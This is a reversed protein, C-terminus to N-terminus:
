YPYLGVAHLLDLSGDSWRDLWAQVRARLDLRDDTCDHLHLVERYLAAWVKEVPNTWPAYTPLFLLSIRSDQLAQIVDPHRHVPWNDQVLTIHEADPYAAEITRYYALLARRPFRSRQAAILRGTVIDLSGAIRRRANAHLGLPATPDKSGRRAYANAVSPHQYYTLEDEYLVVFREPETRAQTCAAQIEALKRDYEPDPSHLTQRGRKYCVGLRKLIQYVGPLSCSRLWSVVQRLGDLWWRSRELGLHYPARHIWDEIEDQAQECSLPFIRRNAGAGM